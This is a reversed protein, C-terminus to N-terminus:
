WIRQFYYGAVRILRAALLWLLILLLQRLKALAPIQLCQWPRRMFRSWILTMCPAMAEGLALLANAMLTKSLTILPPEIGGSAGGEQDVRGKM